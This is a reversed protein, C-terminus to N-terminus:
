GFIFLIIIETNDTKRSNEAVMAWVTTGKVLFPSTYENSELNFPLCTEVIMEEYELFKM